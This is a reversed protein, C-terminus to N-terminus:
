ENMAKGAALPLFLKPSAVCTCLQLFSGFSSLLESVFKWTKPHSDFSSAYRKIFFLKGFEGIGDKLVWQIAVAGGTAEVTGLGLSALM